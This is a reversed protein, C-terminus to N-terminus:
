LNTYTMMKIKRRLFKKYHPRERGLRHIYKSLNM